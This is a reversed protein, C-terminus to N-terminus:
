AHFAPRASSRTQHCVYRLHAPSLSTDGGAGMATQRQDNRLVTASATQACPTQPRFRPRTSPPPLAPPSRGCPLQRHYRRQVKTRCVTEADDSFWPHCPSNLDVSPSPCQEPRSGMPNWPPYSRWPLAGNNNCRRRAAPGCTTGNGAISATGAATIRVRSIWPVRPRAPAYSRGIPGYRVACSLVSRSVRESGTCATWASPPLRRRRIEGPCPRTM